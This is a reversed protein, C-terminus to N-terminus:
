VIEKEEQLHVTLPFKWWVFCFAFKENYATLVVNSVVIKRSKKCITYYIDCFKLTIPGSFLRSVKTSKSLNSIHLKFVMHYVIFDKRERM